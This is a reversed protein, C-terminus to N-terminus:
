LMRVFQRSNKPVIEQARRSTSRCSPFKRWIESPVSVSLSQVLLSTMIAWYEKHNEWIRKRGCQQSLGIRFIASCNFTFYEFIVNELFHPVIVTM